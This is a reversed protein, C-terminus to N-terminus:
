PTNERFRANTRSLERYVTPTVGKMERFRSIFYSVHNFGCAAAIETISQETSALAREARNIRVTNLYDTFTKGTLEKFNRSFYSYSLNVQRSCEQATLDEAYHRNIFVTADYIRQALEEGHLDAPSSSAGTRDIDRLLALLIEAACIKTVIDSAYGPNQTEQILREVTASIRNENCQDKTWFTKDGRNQLALRLLYSAGSSQSSIDLIFAPKLKLVYYSSPDDQMPHIQHITNSRVLIAEGPHSLYETDGSTVRFNGQLIYLFEVATHIHPEACFHLSNSHQIFCEVGDQLMKRNEQEVRYNM